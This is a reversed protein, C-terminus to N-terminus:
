PVQGLHTLGPRCRDRRRGAPGPPDTRGETGAPQEDAPRAARPARRGRRPRAGSGPERGAGGAVTWGCAVRGCAGSLTRAHGAPGCRVPSGAPACASGCRRQERRGARARGHRGKRREGHRGTGRGVRQGFQPRQDGVANESRGPVSLAAVPPATSTFAFMSTASPAVSIRSSRVGSTRSALEGAPNAVRMERPVTCTAPVSSVRHPDRGPVRPVAGLVGVDGVAPREHQLDAAPHVDVM